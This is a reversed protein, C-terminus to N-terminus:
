ASSGQMSRADATATSSRSPADTSQSTGVEISVRGIESCERRARTVLGHALVGSVVLNIVPSHYMGFPIALPPAIWLLTAPIFSLLPRAERRESIQKACTRTPSGTDVEGSRAGFLAVSLAPAVIALDYLQFYALAAIGALLLLTLTRSNLGDRWTLLVAGAIVALGFVFQVIQAAAFSLGGLRAAGYLSLMTRLHDLIFDQILWVQFPLTIDIFSKWPTLGFMLASLGAIAAAGPVSWAVARWQGILLMILGIVAALQPKVSILALCLGALAPRRAARTIALIALAAMAGSFQGYVVMTLTAPALATAVLARRNAGILRASWALLGLNIATWLILAPLYPLAGFPVLFPLLSPPYSFVFFDDASHGFREVIVANYARLDTLLDLQGDLALRGGMWYNVFDRGFPAGVMFHDTLNWPECIAIVVALSFAFGGYILLGDDRDTGISM